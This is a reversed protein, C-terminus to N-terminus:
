WVKDVTTILIILIINIFIINIIFIIFVITIIIIIIIVFEPNEATVIDSFLKRTKPPHLWTIIIIM